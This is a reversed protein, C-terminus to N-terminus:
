VSLTFLFRVSILINRTGNFKLFGNYIQCRELNSVTISKVGNYIKIRYETSRLYCDLTLILTIYRLLNM